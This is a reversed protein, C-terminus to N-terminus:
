IVLYIQIIIYMLFIAIGLFLIWGIVTVPPDILIFLIFLIIAAMASKQIRVLPESVIEKKGTEHNSKVAPKKEYPISKRDIEWNKVWSLDSFLETLRTFSETDTNNFLSAFKHAIDAPAREMLIKLLEYSKKVGSQFESSLKEFGDSGPGIRKMIEQTRILFKTQFILDEFENTVGTSVVIQLLEGVETPYNIRHKSYIELKSIFSKVDLNDDM